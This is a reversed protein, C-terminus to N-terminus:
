RDFIQIYRHCYPSKGGKEYYQQHYDEGTWFKAPTAITTAVKNGKTELTKVLEKIISTEQETEPFVQSLYQSGIDPGQGDIQNFDHTEFFMMALAEYNTKSSDYSVKVAEVHGTDGKCIEEYTPNEKHGGIYGVETKLVGPIRAMYYETGWFCGSAFIASSTKAEEVAKFTMSVSNVCHRINKNTLGEGEFVHGLHADCKQCLIEIRSGDKDTVRKVSGEVEDDFSPWGCTSQFKHESRYLPADCKKCHYHGQANHNDFLGSGKAETGKGEIVWKEFDTLNKKM